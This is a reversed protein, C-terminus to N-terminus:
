VRVTCKHFFQMCVNENCYELDRKITFKSYIRKEGLFREGFIYIMKARNVSTYKKEPNLKNKINKNIIVQIKKRFSYYFLINAM